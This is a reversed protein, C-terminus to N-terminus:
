RQNNFYYIIQHTGDIGETSKDENYIILSLGLNVALSEM